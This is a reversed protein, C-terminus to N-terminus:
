AAADIGQLYSLAQAMGRLDAVKLATSLRNNEPLSRVKVAGFTDLILTATTPAVPKTPLTTNSTSRSCLKGIVSNNGTAEAREIPLIM